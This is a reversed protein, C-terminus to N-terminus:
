NGADDLLEGLKFIEDRRVEGVFNGAGDVAALRDAERGELVGLVDRLTWSMSATPLDTQMIQTVPLANWEERPVAAADRLVCIGLYRDDDDLVVAARQRNQVVHQSMFEAVTADAPVTLVDTMLASTLPLEFRGELHGRRRRRQAPSISADGMLLQSIAAAILGPVVFVAKGTTEAVFMVGTLPTRYGAGLFSAIGLVTFLSITTAPDTGDDLGTAMVFGAVLRGLVAGEVVLPIFKGGAGGGAVTSAFAALRIVLVGLVLWLGRTPDAIWEFVHYGPGLSLPADFVAVSVVVLAASSAGFITVRVWPSVTHSLGKARAHVWVFGRAGAGALLGVMAAGVLDVGTFGTGATTLPVIPATGMIAAYTLYSSAAAVLSSIIGHRAIDETYPVELAYLVGAAPAKFIAALGGAAGAVLLAKTDESRILRGVRSNAASGVAAGIYIAPGEFGMAGGSGLTAISALVRGVVPRQDLPRATDHFAAIYADSTTADAGRAIWHLCAMAVILGVAPAVAQVALPADLLHGLAARSTVADFAAVGLGTGVGVVLAAVLLIQRRRDVFLTPVRRM